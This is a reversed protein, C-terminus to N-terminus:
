PPTVVSSAAAAGAIRGGMVVATLSGTFGYSGVLSGGLMGTLEGAAYLNPLPNADTGQVVGALDVEVGGFGKAVSPRLQVAFYPPTSLATADSAGIEGRWVDAQEGNAYANFLLIEEALAEAPVGIIAALAEPTDAWSALGADVLDQATYGTENMDGSPFHAAGAMNVDTIVWTPQQEAVAQGNRFSNSLSEDCFRHGDGNIWMVKPAFPILFEANDEVPAPGGHAYLGIADLNQTAAGYSELLALGNGDAGAWSAYRVGVDTLDPREVLIRDLNRMFGGTAVIVTRAYTEGTTSSAHDEWQVGVVAGDSWLLDVAEASYWFVDESLENALAEVLGIGGTSVTQVRPVSGASPDQTAPGWSLGLAALWDYVMEKHHYAFFQVWPDEPDGGTIAAWEALLQEPSDTVGQAAQEPTGSFIMLGSAWNASGGYAVERELIRVSAGARSAEVAAALGAPGAGIILVDVEPQPDGSDPPSDLASDGTDGLSIPSLSFPDTSTCALLLLM